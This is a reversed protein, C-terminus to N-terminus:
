STIGLGTSADQEGGSAALRSGSEGASPRDTRRRLRLRGGMDAGIGRRQRWVAFGVAGILACGSFMNNLWQVGTVLQLGQVGTALVFVAILTGWVNPKGPQIQTSGLFVAAFAPLLLGPGFDLAPGTLSGYFIGAIGSLFASAVLPLWTWMGVRVGALRAAEANGGVAYMYRGAPTLEMVWWIILALVLLYWFIMQFGLFTKQSLDIWSQGSAPIPQADKTVISQLAEIVATTGLTAIFPNIHMRVVIFGNVVGIAVCVLLTIVIAEWMNMGDQSQLLIALVASLNIVAGVSLDYAGAALPVLVALALMAGAAQSSAVSHLTSVTLFTGPTWVGFVVIFLVWIYIASFKELGLGFRRRESRETPLRAAM